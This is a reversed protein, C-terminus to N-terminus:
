FCSPPVLRTTAIYGVQGNGLQVQTWEGEVGLFGVETGNTVATLVNGNPATRLNVTPDETDQVQYVTRYLMDGWIYGSVINKTNTSVLVENWESEIFALDKAQIRTLNPVSDIVEGNPSERVNVTTDEADYAFLDFCKNEDIVSESPETSAPELQ